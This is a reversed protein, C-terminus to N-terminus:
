SRGRELLVHHQLWLLSLCSATVLSGTIVFILPDAWGSLTNAAIAVMASPALFLAAFAAPTTRQFAFLLLTPLVYNPSVVAASAAEVAMDASSLRFLYINGTYGHLLAGAVTALLYFGALELAKSVALSRWNGRVQVPSPTTM